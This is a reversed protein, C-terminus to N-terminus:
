PCPFLPLTAVSQFLAMHLFHWINQLNQKEHKPSKGPVCWFGIWLSAIKVQFNERRGPHSSDGVRQKAGGGLAKRQRSREREREREREKAAKPRAMRLRKALRSASPPKHTARAHDSRSARTIPAPTMRKRALTSGVDEVSGRILRAGLVEHLAVDVGQVDVPRHKMCSLKLSRTLCAWRVETFEHAADKRSHITTSQQSLIRASQFVGHPTRARSRHSM